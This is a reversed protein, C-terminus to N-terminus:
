QLHVFYIFSPLVGVILNMCLEFKYQFDVFKWNQGTM